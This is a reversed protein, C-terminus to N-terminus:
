MWSFVFLDITLVYERVGRELEFVVYVCVRMCFAYAPACVGEQTLSGHQQSAITLRNQGIM